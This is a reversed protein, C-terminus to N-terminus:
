STPEALCPKSTCQTADLVLVVSAFAVARM